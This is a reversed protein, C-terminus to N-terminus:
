AAQEIMAPCSACSGLHEVFAQRREAALIGVLFPNLDESYGCEAQNEQM